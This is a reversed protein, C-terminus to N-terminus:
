EGIKRPDTIHGTIASAAVTVPSALHSRVGRGQRDEFNRNTTSLVHQGRSFGEGGAGGSMCMSCGSERWEFGAERFIRDIGEAEARRKTESSGPSCVAWIGPALRRGKLIRAAERLDSLRANTCSGIFVADIKVQEMPTGPRVGMYSVAREMTQRTLSDPANVPDPVRDDVAVSHEPSTGWTVQPKIDDCNIVVEKDFHAGPDSHLTRWYETAKEWMEGKPAFLRSRFYELTIDDPAVIGTRASFEVAMNCITLRGDIPLRNIVPGAFEVAHGIGGGAGIDAILYLVVDKPYVEDGLKGNLIVRMNKAKAQILTQTAFVHEVDTSGIGLAFAGIGGITCTHSDGCVYTCGPLAIGLEPAIVHSIGQRPDDIDFLRLSHARTRQRFQQIFNTGGPIPTGDSRGPHTDLVHDMVGFFLEPNRIKRGAADIGNLATAGALEHQVNRDIHLLYTNQGLDMIIHSGWIKDVLTKPSNM